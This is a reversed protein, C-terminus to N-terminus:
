RLPTDGRAGKEWKNELKWMVASLAIVIVGFATVFSIMYPAGLIV